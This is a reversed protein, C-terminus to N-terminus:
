HSAPPAGLLALSSRAPIAPDGVDGEPESWEIIHAVTAFAAIETDTPEDAM